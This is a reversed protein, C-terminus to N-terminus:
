RVPLSVFLLQNGPSERNEFRNWGPLTSWFNDGGESFAVLPQDPFEQRLLQAARSGVGRRRASAAVEFFKIELYGDPMDPVGYSNAIPMDEQIVLIRAVERGTSDDARYLLDDESGLYVVTHDGWWDSDFDESDAFPSRDYVDHPAPYVRTLTLDNDM